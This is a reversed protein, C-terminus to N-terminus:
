YRRSRALAILGAGLLLASSPEPVVQFSFDFGGVGNGGSAGNQVVFRYTDPALLADFDFVVPNAGAFDLFDFVVGGSGILSTRYVFNGSIGDGQFEVSFDFPTQTGVSFTIDFTSTGGVFEIDSFTSVSASGSLEAPGISSTQSASGINGSWSLEGPGPEDRLTPTGDSFVTTISRDDQVLTLAAVSAPLGLVLLVVALMAGSARLWHQGELPTSIQWSTM